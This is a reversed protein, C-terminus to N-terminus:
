RCGARRRRQNATTSAASSGTARRTRGRPVVEGRDRRASRTSSPTASIRAGIEHRAARRADASTTGRVRRDAAFKRACGRSAGSTRSIRLSDRSLAGRCSLAPRIGSIRPRKKWFRGRIRSIRPANELNAPRGGSSGRIEGVLLSDTLRPAFKSFKRGLQRSPGANQRFRGAPKVTKSTPPGGRRSDTLRAAFRM